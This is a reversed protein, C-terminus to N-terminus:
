PRDGSRVIRAPLPPKSYHLYKFPHIDLPNPVWGALVEAHVFNYSPSHKYPIIGGETLILEEAEAMRVYRERGELQMSENILGDYRTSAYGGKNLNSDSVWMGLFALPDAYDGIWSMLGLTYDITEISDYYDGYPIVTIKAELGLENKWASGMAAALEQVEQGAPIKFVPVPLGQGEPFGAEALLRFAEERDTSNLGEIAPYGAIEPVARATPVAYREKTRLEQWPILLLLARRVRPDDWPKESCVFYFYSTAFQHFVALTNPEDVQDYLINGAAWLLEKANYRETTKQYDDSLYVTIKEALVKERDWYLENKHLILKDAERSYLMFPGNGIVSPVEAWETQERFKPHIPTFSHHCLIKLFHSAPATLRVVLKGDESVQIGVQDQEGRGTRYEKAGDIIDFLFTYEAKDDPDLHLLWSQRFDEATVPDGNWYRADPRLQFTYETGDESVEVYRAVGPVPELTLPHYTYLGEYLATYVQAETSSYSHHPDLAITTSSFSVSIPEAGAVFGLISLLLYLLIKRM